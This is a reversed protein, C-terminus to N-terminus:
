VGGTGEGECLGLAASLQCRPGPGTHTGGQGGGRRGTHGGTGGAEEGSGLAASLAQFKAQTTSPNFPKRAIALSLLDLLQLRM